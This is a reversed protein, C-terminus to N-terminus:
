EFLRFHDPRIRIVEGAKELEKFKQIVEDRSRGTSNVTRNIIDELPVGPLPKGDNPNRLSEKIQRILERGSKPFIQDIDQDIALKPDTVKRMPVSLPDESIVFDVQLHAVRRMEYLNYGECYGADSNFTLFLGLGGDEGHIANKNVMVAFSDEDGWPVFGQKTLSRLLLARDTFNAKFSREIKTATDKAM